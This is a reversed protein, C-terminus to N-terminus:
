KVFNHLTKNSIVYSRQFLAGKIKLYIVDCKLFMPLIMGPLKKRLIKKILMYDTTIFFMCLKPDQFHYLLILHFKNEKKKREGLEQKHKCLHLQPVFTYLSSRRM